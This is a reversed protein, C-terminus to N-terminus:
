WSIGISLNLLTYTVNSLRDTDKRFTGFRRGVGIWDCGITFREWTWQNGIRIGAGLSTYSAYDHLSFADGWFGNVDEHSRLYFLEPAAYFSNAFYKKYQIAISNQNEKGHLNGLKLGVLDKPTIFYMGTIAQNPLRYDQIANQFTVEFKKGSRNEESTAANVMQNSFLVIWVLIIFLSQISM